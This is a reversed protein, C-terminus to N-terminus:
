LFGYETVFGGDEDDEISAIIEPFFLRRGLDHRIKQFEFVPNEFTDGFASNHENGYFGTGLSQFNDLGLAGQVFKQGGFGGLVISENQDLSHKVGKEIGGALGIFGEEDLVSQMEVVGAVGM